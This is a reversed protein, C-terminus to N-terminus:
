LEAAYWGRSRHPGERELHERRSGSPFTDSQPSRAPVFSLWRWQWLFPLPSVPLPSRELCQAKCSLIDDGAGAPGAAVLAQRAADRCVFPTRLSQACGASSPSGLWQGLGDGQLVSQNHHCQSSTRYGAAGPLAGPSIARAEPPKKESHCTHYRQHPNHSLKSRVHGQAGGQCRWVNGTEM